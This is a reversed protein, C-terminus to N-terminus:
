YRGDFFCGDSACDTGIKPVIAEMAVMKIQARAARKRWTSAMGVMEATPDLNKVLSPWCHNM